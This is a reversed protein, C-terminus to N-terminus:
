SGSLAMEEILLHPANISGEFKLDNGVARIGKLMTLTDSALSVDTVPAALEGKEIMLGKAQYSWGGTPPDYGFAGTDVLYFGRQVSRIMEEVPTAGNEVYLSNPGIGPLSQYGRSAHGTSKAKAKAAWRLNYVFQKAVGKDILVVRQTPTGEDDFPAGGLARRRLPDDVLTILPSAVSEGLRDALYSAKKFVQEGSFAFFINSIWNQAVDPHMLVQLKETAVKRAGIMRIARKAAEKGIEESSKLDAVFRQTSGENGARQKGDADDALVSLFLGVFTAKYHRDVGRTNLLYTEADGRSASATQTAKIRPDVGRATREADIARRILDDPGLAAVAPDHLQLGGSEPAPEALVNADDPPSNRALLVAREALADLAEPRFDSTYVLAASKGSLVRLGLGRSDAQKVSAARGDRVEVDLSRNAQLFAEVDTAGAKKASKLAHEVTEKPSRSM